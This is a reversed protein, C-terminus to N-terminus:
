DERTLRAMKGEPVRAPEYASDSGKFVTFGGPLEEWYAGGTPTVKTANKLATVRSTYFRVGSRTSLTLAVQASAEEVLIVGSHTVL